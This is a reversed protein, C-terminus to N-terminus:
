ARLVLNDREERGVARHDNMWLGCTEELQRQYPRQGLVQVVEPLVSV